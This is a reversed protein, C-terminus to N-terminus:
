LICIRLKVTKKFNGESKEGKGIKGEQCREQYVTFDNEDM